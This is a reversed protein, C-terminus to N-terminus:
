VEGREGGRASPAPPEGTPAHGPRPPCGGGVARRHPFQRQQSPRRTTRFGTQNKTNRLQRQEKRLLHYDIRERTSVLLVNGRGKLWWGEPFLGCLAYGEVAIETVGARGLM